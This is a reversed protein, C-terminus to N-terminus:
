GPDGLSRAGTYSSATVDAIPPPLRIGGQARGGNDRCRVDALDALTRGPSTKGKNQLAGGGIIAGVLI